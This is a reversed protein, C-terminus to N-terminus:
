VTNNQMPNNVCEVENTQLRTKLSDIEPSVEHINQIDLPNTDRFNFIAMNCEHLTIYICSRRNPFVSGHIEIEKM